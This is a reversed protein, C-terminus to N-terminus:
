NIARSNDKSVFIKTSANGKLRRAEEILVPM